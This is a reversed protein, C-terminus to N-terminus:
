LEKFQNIAGYGVQRFLLGFHTKDGFYESGAGLPLDLFNLGYHILNQPQLLLILLKGILLQLVLGALELLSQFGPLGQIGNQGLGEGGNPLSCVPHQPHPGVGHLEDAADHEM